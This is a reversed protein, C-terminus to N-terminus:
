HIFLYLLLLLYLIIFIRNYFGIIFYFSSIILVQYIVHIRVNWQWSLLFISLLDYLNHTNLMSALPHRELEALRRVAQKRAGRTDWRTRITTEDEEEVEKDFYFPFFFFFFTTFSSVIRHTNLWNMIHGYLFSFFFFFWKEIFVAHSDWSKKKSNFSFFFTQLNFFSIKGLSRDISENLRKERHIKFLKYISVNFFTLYFISFSIYYKQLFFLFIFFIPPAFSLFASLLCFHVYHLQERNSRFFEIPRFKALIIVFFVVLFVSECYRIDNGESKKTNEEAFTKRFKCSFNEVGNYWHYISFETIYIHVFGRLFKTFM